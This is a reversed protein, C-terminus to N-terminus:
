INRKEAGCHSCFVNENVEIDDHGYKLCVELPDALRRTGNEFYIWEGILIGEMM